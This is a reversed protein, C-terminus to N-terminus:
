AGDESHPADENLAQLLADHLEGYVAEHEAVPLAQVGGLAAAIVAVPADDMEEAATDPWDPTHQAPGPEHHDTLETM